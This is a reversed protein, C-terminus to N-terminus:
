SGSPPCVFPLVWGQCQYFEATFVPEEKGVSADLENVESNIIVAAELTVMHKEVVYCYLAEFYM